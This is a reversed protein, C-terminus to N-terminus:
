KKAERNLHPYISPGHGTRWLLAEAEANFRSILGELEEIHAAISRPISALQEDSAFELCRTSTSVSKLFNIIDKENPM